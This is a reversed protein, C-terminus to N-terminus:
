NNFYIYEPGEPAKNNVVMVDGDVDSGNKAILLGGGAQSATNETVTVNDGCDLHGLVLIGGGGLASNDRIGSQNRMRLTGLDTIYVGGGLNGTKNERIVANNFMQFTVHQKEVGGLFVGGGDFSSNGSIAANEYMDFKGQRLYVGGGRKGEASNGSIESRGKMIFVAATGDVCVGGGYNARNGKITSNGQMTVSGKELYIGGGLGDENEGSRKTIVNNSIEAYDQMNLSGDIITIGGGDISPKQMNMPQGGVAMMTVTGNRIENNSISAQGSMTLTGGGAINVAGSFSTKNGSIEANGEMVLSGGNVRIAGRDSPFAFNGKQSDGSSGTIDSVRASSRGGNHVPNDVIGTVRAGAGLTVTGGKNVTIGSLKSGSIDIDEFRIRANNNVIVIEEDASLVAKQAGPKGCVLIEANGTNTIETKGKLTGLVTIKKVTGKSAEQIAKALTRFPVSESKGDNSDSGNAQVFFSGSDAKNSAELPPNQSAAQNQQPKPQTQIAVAGTLTLETVKNQGNTRVIIIKVTSRNKRANIRINSSQSSVVTKKAAADYVGPRVEITHSGDSVIRRKTEGTDLSGLFDGNQYVCALVGEPGTYNLFIESEGDYVIRDSSAWSGGAFVVHAAALFVIGIFTKKM